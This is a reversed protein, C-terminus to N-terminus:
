QLQISPVLTLGVRRKWIPAQHYALRPDRLDEHTALRPFEAARRGLYTPPQRKDTGPRSQDNAFTVELVGDTGNIEVRQNFGTRQGTLLPVLDFM